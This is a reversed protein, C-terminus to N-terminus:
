LHGGCGDVEYRWECSQDKDTWDGSDMGLGYEYKAKSMQEDIKDVWLHENDNLYEQVEFEDVSDPIEIEVETTKHYVSRHLITAKM